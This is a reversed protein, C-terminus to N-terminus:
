ASEAIMLLFDTLHQRARERNAPDRYGSAFIFAATDALGFNEGNYGSENAIQERYYDRLEADDELHALMLRGALTEWQRPDYALAASAM